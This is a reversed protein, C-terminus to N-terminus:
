GEPAHLKPIISLTKSFKYVGSALMTTKVNRAHFMKKKKEM